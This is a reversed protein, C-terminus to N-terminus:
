EGQRLCPSPFYPPKVTNFSTLSITLPLYAKNNQDSRKFFSEELMMFGAGGHLFLAVFGAWAAHLNLFQAASIRAQIKYV